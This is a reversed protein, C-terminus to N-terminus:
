RRWDDDARHVAAHIIWGVIFHIADEFAKDNAAKPQARSEPISNEGPFLSRGKQKNCVLSSVIRQWCRKLRFANNFEDFVAHIHIKETWLGSQSWMLRKPNDM